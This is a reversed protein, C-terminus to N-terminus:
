VQKLRTIAELTQLLPTIKFIVSLNIITFNCINLIIDYTRDNEISM